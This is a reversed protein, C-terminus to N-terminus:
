QDAVPATRHGSRPGRGFARDPPARRLLRRVGGRGRARHSINVTHAQDGGTGVADATNAAILVRVAEALIAPALGTVEEATEGKARMAVLFGAPHVPDVDGTIVQRLDEDASPIWM